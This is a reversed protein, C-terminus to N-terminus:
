KEKDKVLRGKLDMIGEDDNSVLFSLDFRLQQPYRGKLEAIVAKM